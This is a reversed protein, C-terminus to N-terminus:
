SLSGFEVSLVIVHVVLLNFGFDLGFPRVAGTVGCSMSDFM